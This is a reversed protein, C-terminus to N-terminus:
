VAVHTGACSGGVRDKVADGPDRVIGAPIDPFRVTLAFGCDPDNLLGMESLQLPMGLVKAQEKKGALMVGPAPVAVEVRVMEEVVTVPIFRGSRLFDTGM